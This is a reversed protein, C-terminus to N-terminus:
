QLPKEPYWLVSTRSDGYSLASVAMSALFLALRSSAFTLGNDFTPQKGNWDSHQLLYIAGTPGHNIETLWLDGDQEDSLPVFGFDILRRNLSGEECERAYQKPPWFSFTRPWSRDLDQYELTGGVLCHQALLTQLWLPVANRIVPALADWEEPPVTRSPVRLLEFRAELCRASTILEEPLMLETAYNEDTLHLPFGKGM